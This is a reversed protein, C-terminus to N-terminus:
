AGALARERAWAYDPKGNPGREIADVVVVERPVKYGALQTRAFQRLDEIALAAGARPQVVAVVRQGWQEDPVGVILVDQV